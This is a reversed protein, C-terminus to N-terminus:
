IIKLWFLRSQLQIMSLMKTIKNKNTTDAKENKKRGTSYKLIYFSHMLCWYIFIEQFVTSINKNTTPLKVTAQKVKQVQMRFTPYLTSLKVNTDCKKENDAQTRM